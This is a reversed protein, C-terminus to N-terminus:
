NKQSANILIWLLWLACPLWLAFSLITMNEIVYIAMFGVVLPLFILMILAFVPFWFHVGKAGVWFEEPM